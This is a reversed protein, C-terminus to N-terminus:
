YLCLDLCVTHCIMVADYSMVFFRASSCLFVYVTDRVIILFV